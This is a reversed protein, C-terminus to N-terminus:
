DSLYFGLYPLKHIQPAMSVSFLASSGFHQWFLGNWLWKCRMFIISRIRCILFPSSIPDIPHIYASIHCNTYKPSPQCLFLASSGFHPWFSGNWLWKCRMFISALIMCILFPSSIPDFPCISALIHCNPYKHYSQCVFCHLLVLSCGFRAM